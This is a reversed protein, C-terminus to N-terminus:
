TPRTWTTENTTPNHYYVNGHEDQYAQWDPPFAAPAATTALSLTAATPKTWSSEGTTRNYNFVIGNADHHETWETEAQEEQEHQQEQQQQQAQQEAQFFRIKHQERWEDKHKEYELTFHCLDLVSAFKM